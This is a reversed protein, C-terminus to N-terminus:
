AVGDGSARNSAAAVRSASRGPHQMFVRKKPLSM